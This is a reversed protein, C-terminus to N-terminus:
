TSCLYDYESLSVMGTRYTKERTVRKGLSKVSNWIIQKCYTAFKADIELSDYRNPREEIPVHKRVLRELIAEQFPGFKQRNAGHRRRNDWLLALEKVVRKMFRDRVHKKLVALSTEIYKQRKYYSGARIMDIRLRQVIDRQDETHNNNYNKQLFIWAAKHCLKGFKEELNEYEDNGIPFANM